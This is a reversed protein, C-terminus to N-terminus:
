AEPHFKRNQKAYDKLIQAPEFQPGLADRYRLMMDVFKDAGFADVLRFPGGRFPPFGIGFVAGIDGVVPSGIIDHQLCLATENVFRSVLRMQIDEVSTLGSSPKGRLKRQEEIMEVVEPNVTKKGRPPFIHLGKGTKRGLFGKAVVKELLEPDATGIREGLDGQLTKGVSAATDIGVEDVLTMPGVPYGYKVMARDIEEISAGDLLVAMAEDSYPGLCRNVYFGPVDKVVIVTKGQKLGMDYARATTEDSTGPHRIIELLPMKDVPSFYHMGIFQEPRSSAEALKTIPIASTNTAFVCHAPTIAEFQKIIKHKLELNEFVAEIIMDAHSFHKQWNADSDTLGVIRSMTQDREFTTMRRKKTKKNLNKYIQDLGRALGEPKADKLLIDVGKTMTVEAIGAGMLGAGLVGVTNEKRKPKGYPNKKCATQGFYISVLARSEPTMGLEGFAKAEAEYGAKSCFGHKASTELVDIIKLPAPYVGKTQKMVMDRAKKFAFNRGFETGEIVKNILKQVGKPERDVKLTGDALGKAALVAAHKLASPDAVNDVLKMRKAKSPKVNKGTLMLPMANQLGILAPLRQTGGAGPLIGLMVEPLGLVTKPSSSAVRYHCALALELGGGLCSGNIAAVKPKGSALQDFMAHSPRSLNEMEEATKCKTFMNIDAGAIFNDEKGSMIVAARVKPDSELTSMVGKFEDALDMNLTNVKTGQLDFTVIAIGDDEIEYRVNKGSTASSAARSFRATAGLLRRQAFVRLMM